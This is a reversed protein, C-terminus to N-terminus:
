QLSILMPILGEGEELAALAKGIVAGFARAPDSAKMARGPTPSSTLLDGVAIRGYRADVRCHAKGILALPMRDTQSPQKDLIIGPKYNGAGSIVGAVRRDYAQASPALRSEDDLIVVVGPQLESHAAVDFDEACDANKLIIDGADGNLHITAEDTNNTTTAGKPFIVLDGDAGNGGLWINGSNANLDIRSQGAASNLLIRGNTTNGGLRLAANNGDLHISGQAATENEGDHRFLVLDGDAGDGGLWVNGGNADVDIRKEGAAGKLLIRGNTTNGGLRLMSNEGDLHISAQATTQNDGDERFLLLDGDRGNGGLYVNGDAPNMRIRPSGQGPVNVGRLTIEGTNGNLRIVEVSATSQIRLTGAQANLLVRDNNSADRLAIDGHQGAGGLRLDGDAGLRATSQDFTNNDSGTPFLILFGNVGHGGVLVGGTQTELRIRHLGDGGSLRLTGMIGNAGAAIVGTDGRVSFVQQAAQNQIILDGQNADLSIRGLGASNTVFVKGTGGNGGAIIVGSDGNLEVTTQAAPNQIEVKGSFQEGM